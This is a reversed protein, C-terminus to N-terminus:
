HKEPIIGTSMSLKVPSRIWLILGMLGVMLYAFMFIILSTAVATEASLGAMAFFFILVADRVGLGSISFPLADSLAVVPIVLLLYGYPIEIGLSKVVFFYNAALVVISAAGALCSIALRKKDRWIASMGGYFDEFTVKFRGKHGHPVVRYFLPRLLRSSIGRNAMVYIALMFAVFLGASAMTFDMIGYSLMVAVASAIGFIFLCAIDIVRDVAVSAISFGSKVHGRLYLVRSLDGIRGPTIIGVFFGVLWYKVSDALKVHFGVSEVLVKWKYSKLLIIAFTTLIVFSLYVPDLSWLLRNMTGLDLGTLIYLFVAIGVVPFLRYFKM